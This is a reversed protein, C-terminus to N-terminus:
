KKPNPQFKRICEWIKSSEEFTFAGKKQASDLFAVMLNLAVNEDTVEVESIKVQKPQPQPASESVTPQEM